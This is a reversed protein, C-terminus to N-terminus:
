PSSGTTARTRKGKKKEGKGEGKGNNGQKNKKWIRGDDLTILYHLKGLKRKIRGLRWKEKGVYNRCIVRAGEQFFIGQKSSNEKGEPEPKLLNLRNRMQKHLLM